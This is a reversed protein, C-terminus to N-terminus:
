FSKFSWKGGNKINEMIQSFKIKKIGRKSMRARPMEERNSVEEDEVINEETYINNIANEHEFISKLYPFCKFSKYLYKNMEEEGHFEHNDYFDILGDLESKLASRPKLFFEPDEKNFNDKALSKNANKHRQIEFEELKDLLEDKYRCLFSEVGPSYFFNYLSTFNFMVYEVASIYEKRRLESLNEMYVNTYNRFYTIDKEHKEFLKSFDQFLASLGQDEEIYDRSEYKLLKYKSVKEKAEKEKCLSNTANSFLNECFTGENPGFSLSHLIFNRKGKYIYFNGDKDSMISDNGDDRALCPPIFDLPRQINEQSRIIDENIYFDFQVEKDKKTALDYVFRRSGLYNVPLPPVEDDKSSTDPDCNNMYYRNWFIDELKNFAFFHYGKFKEKNEFVDNLTKSLFYQIHHHISKGRVVMFRTNMSLKVTEKFAIPVSYTRLAGDYGTKKNVCGFEVNIGDSFIYAISGTKFPIHYLDPNISTLGTEDIVNFYPIPCGTVFKRLVTEM